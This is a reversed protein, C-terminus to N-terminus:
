QFNIRRVQHAAGLGLDPKDLNRTITNFMDRASAVQCVTITGFEMGTQSCLLDSPTTSYLKVVPSMGPCNGAVDWLMNKGDILFLRNHIERCEAAKAMAVFDATAVTPAEPDGGCATVSLAAVAVAALTAGVTKTRQWFKDKCYEM